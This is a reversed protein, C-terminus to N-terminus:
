EGEMGAPVLAAAAETSPEAAGVGEEPLALARSVALAAQVAIATLEVPEDQLARAGLALLHDRLAGNVQIEVANLRAVLEPPWGKGSLTLRAWPKSGAAIALVLQTRDNLQEHQRYYLSPRSWNLTLTVAPQWADPQAAGSEPTSARPRLDNQTLPSLAALIQHAADSDPALGRVLPAQRASADQASAALSIDMRSLPKYAAADSRLETVDLVESPAMGGRWDPLGIDRTLEWVPAGNAGAMAPSGKVNADSPSPVWRVYRGALEASGAGSLQTAAAPRAGLQLSVQAGNGKVSLLPSQASFGLAELAKDTAPKRTRLQAEGLQSVLAEVKGQRAPWGALSTIQWDGAPGRALSLWDQSAETGRRIGIRQASAAVQSLLPLPQLIGSQGAAVTTLAESMLSESQWQALDTEGTAAGSRLSELLSPGATLATVAAVSVLATLAWGTRNFRGM